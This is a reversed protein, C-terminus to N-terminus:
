KDTASQNEKGNERKERNKVYLIDHGKIEVKGLRNKNPFLIILKNSTEYNM